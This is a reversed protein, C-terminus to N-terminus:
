RGVRWSKSESVGGDVPHVDVDETGRREERGRKWAQGSCRQFELCVAHGREGDRNQCSISGAGIYQHGLQPAFRVLANVLYTPTAGRGEVDKCNSNADTNIGNVCERGQAYLM